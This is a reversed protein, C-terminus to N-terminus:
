NGNGNGNWSGTGLEEVLWLSLKENGSKNLHGDDFWNNKDDLIENPPLFIDGYKLYTEQEKPQKFNVGYSPLYIFSLRINQEKCIRNIKKLYGRSYSAYFDISVQNDERDNLNFNTKRKELIKYDATDPYSACGYLKSNVPIEKQQKFILDQNLELKYSFHDIADVFIDRNFFLKPLLVDKSSAIHPFIPHSYRNENERVELILHKPQKAELVEKLLIYSFNRGLRCYGLNAVTTGNALKTEILQDDIGNITHSSGLFLLDISKENVFVRDHIFIGRNDCDGSIGQYKHRKDVPLFILLLLVPLLFALIHLYLKQM